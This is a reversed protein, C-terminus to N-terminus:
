DLYEHKKKNKCPIVGDKNQLRSNLAYVEFNRFSALEVIDKFISYFM